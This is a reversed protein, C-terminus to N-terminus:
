VCSNQRCRCSGTSRLLQPCHVSEGTFKQVKRGTEELAKEVFEVMSQQEPSPISLDTTTHIYAMPIEKWAAKEIPQMMGKGHWRCLTKVYDKVEAEDVGPGRLGMTSPADRLVITHDEAMDFALPVNELKGFEKFKDFTSMGEPLAYGVMYVLNSVGGKLGQSSRAELGLGCLANSMVQAGYSHGIPVVTRGARVLSEVYSRVLNTDDTLDANPPRAENCTLLRPVHVEFGAEELASALKSYSAPTHFAGGIIVLTPKIDATM